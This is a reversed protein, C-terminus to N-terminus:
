ARYARFEQGCLAALTLPQWDLRRKPILLGKGLLGWFGLTASDSNHMHQPLVDCVDHFQGDGHTKGQWIDWVRKENAQLSGYM